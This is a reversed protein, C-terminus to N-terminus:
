PSVGSEALGRELMDSWVKQKSVKEPTPAVTAKATIKGKPPQRGKDVGANFKESRKTTDTTTAKAKEADRDQIWPALRPLDIFTEGAKLNPFQAVDQATATRVYYDRHSTIEKEAAAYDAETWKPGYHGKLTTVGTAVARQALQETQQTREADRTRDTVRAGLQERTTSRASKAGYLVEKVLLGRAKENWQLTQGGDATQVLEVLDIIGQIDPPVNRSQGDEGKTWTGLILPAIAGGTADLMAMQEQLEALKAPGGAQEYEQARQYWHHAVAKAQEGETLRTRIGEIKDPPILAGQGKVEHIGDVAVPQGNVTITFPETGALPDDDPAPADAPTDTSATEDSPAPQAPASDDEVEAPPTLAEAGSTGADASTDAPEGAPAGDDTIVGEATLESLAQDLIPDDSKPGKSKDDPM